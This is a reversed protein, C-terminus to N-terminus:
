KGKNPKKREKYKDIENNIFIVLAAGATIFGVTYFFSKWKTPKTNASSTSPMPISPETALQTPSVQNPQCSRSPYNKTLDLFKKYNDTM